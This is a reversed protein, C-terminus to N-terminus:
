KEFIDPPPKLPKQSYGSFGGPTHYVGCTAMINETEWNICTYIILAPYIALSWGYNQGDIERMTWTEVDETGMSPPDMYVQWQKTGHATVWYYPYETNIQAYESDHISGANKRVWTLGRFMDAIEREREHSANTHGGFLWKRMQDSIVTRGRLREYAM